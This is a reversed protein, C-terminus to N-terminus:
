KLDLYSIISKFINRITVDTVGAAEAFVKQAMNEEEGTIRSSLYLVTAALGMPNKGASIGGRKTIDSMINMAQRKTKQGIDVKNAIRSICKIPEVIPVKVELEIVLRRYNRAIDKRKINSIAAIGKLTRPTGMERCAIYVTAALVSYIERGRVLGREQAKRYIYATKEIIADSLGLKYKLRDLENFAQMLNRDTSSYVQSRYDCRRLREISSRMSVDLKQGRADKDTQGIITYLGMDHRALSLPRGTRRLKKNKEQQSDEFNRWEPRGSEETKDCIVMGCNSCFIEGSAPDTIMNLPSKCIICIDPTTM